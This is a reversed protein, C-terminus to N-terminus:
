KSEWGFWNLEKIYYPESEWETGCTLCRYATIKGKYKHFGKSWQRALVTKEIGKTMIGKYWYKEQPTSEFCVPCVHCFQNAEECENVEKKPIKGRKVIKM